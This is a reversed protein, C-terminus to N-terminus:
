RRSRELRTLEELWRRVIACAEDVTAVAVTPTEKRDVVTIVRICLGGPRHPRVWARLVLVGGHQDRAGTM